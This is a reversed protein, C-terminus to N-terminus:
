TSSVHLEQFTAQLGPKASQDLRLEQLSQKVKTWAVPPLTMTLWYNSEHDKGMIVVMLKTTRSQKLASVQHFIPTGPPNCRPQKGLGTRVVAPHFDAARLLNAKSWNTFPVPLANSDSYLLKSTDKAQYQERLCALVQAETAQEVLHQRNSLAIMGMPKLAEEASLFTNAPLIMNQLYIGPANSLSPIRFRANMVHLATMPRLRPLSTSIARMAWATLIDGDSVFASKNGNTSTAIDLQAQLRLAAMVQFPLCITQTEPCPGRVMDWLYRSVFKILRPGELQKSKLSYEQPKETSISAAESLADAHAGLVPPVESERGQLVLSWAHLLAQQGMIDMLTHPWTIAVLTANTFTTIRLSMQPTDRLWLDKPCRPAGIPATLAEFSHPSPWFSVDRTPRPFNKTAEHDEVALDIHEHSYSFAPRDATFTRPVRM